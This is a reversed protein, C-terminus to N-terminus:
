RRASERIAEVITSTNWGVIRHASDQVRQPMRQSGWPRVGIIWKNWQTAKVLEYDIWDSHSVYIGSLIVVAQAPRIQDDLERRLASSNNAIVPDHRPVSYNRWSFYHAANLLSVLRDYSDHYRWAHSIFINYAM